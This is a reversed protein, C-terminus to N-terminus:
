LLKNFEQLWHASSFEPLRVSVFGLHEGVNYCVPGEYICSEAHSELAVCVQTTLWPNIDHPSIANPPLTRHADLAAPYATLATSKPVSPRLVIEHVYVYSTM